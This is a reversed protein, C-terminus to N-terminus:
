TCSPHTMHNRRNKTGGEKDSLKTSSRRIGTRSSTCNTKCTRSRASSSSYGSATRPFTTRTAPHTSSTQRFFRTRLIGGCNPVTQLRRPSGDTVKGTSCNMIEVAHVGPPKSAATPQFRGRFKETRIRDFGSKRRARSKTRIHWGADTPRLTWLGLALDKNKITSEIKGDTSTFAIEGDRGDFHRMALTQGDPFWRADLATKIIETPMAADDVSRVLIRKTFPMDKINSVYAIRVNDPAWAPAGNNEPSSLRKGERREIDYIWIYDTVDAVEVALRKGNPSLDVVGYVRQPAELFEVVGKRDVWALKGNAREGGPVYALLGSASVAAHVQGFLSEMSVGAAVPAPEGQVELRIPDFRIGFLTGARAFVLYGPQVFRAAYGSKIIRKAKSSAISVVEIDSYVKSDFGEAPIHTGLSLLANATLDIVTHTLPGSANHVSTGTVSKSSLTLWTAIAGILLGFALVSVPIAARWRRKSQRELSATTGEPERLAAEIELRADAIDHLRQHIDKALCRRLVRLISSPLGGPLKEWDPEKHVIAGLVDTLTEGEFVPRGTLMEFLVAGFAWVDTRKDVTKGRAQEPSMYAATGLIMGPISAGSMITPSNSRAPNLADDRFIKALGFDLVKVKDDPTIKINAPKLDRHIIGKEHAAELADAIRAAIRLADDLPIPGRHLRNALTEGEVLEMVICTQPTSDELGYVQAINQHNLSALVQAERHFRSLREPDGAFHEPL